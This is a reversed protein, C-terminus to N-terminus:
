EDIFEDVFEIDDDQGIAELTEPSVETETGKGSNKWAERFKDGYVDHKSIYWDEYNDSLGASEISNKITRLSLSRWADNVWTEEVRQDRISTGGGRKNIKLFNEM